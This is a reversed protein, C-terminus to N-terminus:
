LGPRKDSLQTYILAFDFPEIYQEKAAEQTYDLIWGWYSEAGSVAAESLGAVEEESAGGLIQERQRAAAAESYRGMAEYTWALRLYAFQFDPDMELAAQSEEISEDYRRAFRFQTAAATRAAPNLPNLQQARRIEAIGEEHRGLGSM